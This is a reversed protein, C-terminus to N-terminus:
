SLPQWRFHRAAVPWVMLGASALKAMDLTWPTRPWIIATADPNAVSWGDRYPVIPFARDGPVPTSPHTINV